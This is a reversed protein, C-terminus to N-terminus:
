TRLHAEFVDLMKDFAEGSVKVNRLNKVCMNKVHKEHQELLAIIQPKKERLNNENLWKEIDFMIKGMKM